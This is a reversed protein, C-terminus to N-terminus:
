YYENNPGAKIEKPCAGGLPDSAANTETASEDVNALRGVFTIRLLPLTELSIFIKSILPKANECPITM